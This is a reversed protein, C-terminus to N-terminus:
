VKTGYEHWFDNGAGTELGHQRNQHLDKQQLQLILHDKAEWINKWIWRNSSFQKVLEKSETSILM